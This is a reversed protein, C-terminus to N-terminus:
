ALAHVEDAVARPGQLPHLRGIHDDMRGSLLPKALADELGERQVARNDAGLRSPNRLHEASMPAHYRHRAWLGEGGSPMLFGEVGGDTIPLGKSRSVTRGVHGSLGFRGVGVKESSPM